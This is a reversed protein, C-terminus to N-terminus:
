VMQKIMFLKPGVKKLFTYGFLIKFYWLILDLCLIIRAAQYCNDCPSFRLVIGVYFFFLAALKIVNIYNTFFFILKAKFINREINHFVRVEDITFTIVWFILVIELISIPLGLSTVPNARQFPYFDCLMVYSFLVLFM